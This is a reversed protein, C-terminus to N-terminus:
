KFYRESRAVMRRYFERMCHPVEWKKVGSPCDVNCMDTIFDPDKARELALELLEKRSKPRDVKHLFCAGFKTRSVAVICGIPSNDKTDRVYKVIFKESM